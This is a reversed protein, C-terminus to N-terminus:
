ELEYPEYTEKFIDAKCLYYEDRIGRIIYDNKAAKMNGELTHIIMGNGDEVINCYTYFKDQTIFDDGVRKGIFELVDRITKPSFDKLQIAEIVVPKKRYKM